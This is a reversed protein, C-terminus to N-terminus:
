KSYVRNRRLALFVDKLRLNFNRFKKFALVVKGQILFYIIQRIKINKLNRIILLREDEPLPCNTNLLTSCDLHFRKIEITENKHEEVIQQGEHQRWYVLGPPIQVVSSRRSLLYWLQIDGFYNEGSFGGLENFSSRRIIVSTPGVSLVKNTYFYARYAEKSTILYPYIKNEIFNLSIGFEAKPYKEMSSVMIDICWPMIIDDSDVYKIYKGTAYSAAINRNKYDGLNKENVFLKIRDDNQIYKKVLEVTNDTSCDDVVILEIKKYSSALISDISQEIYQSRNYSTVLISVLPNSM